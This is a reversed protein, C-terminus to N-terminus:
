GHAALWDGASREFWAFPGHGAYAPHPLTREGRRELGVKELVRQSSTNDLDTIGVIRPLGRTVFGYRLLARAGEAAYGRGWADKRLIFGVQIDPEGQIHNLVHMGLCRGSAREITAWVGLGPHRDYYELIRERFLAATQERTKVGGLYRTIDPDSYFQVLLEFDAPTFARLGLRTTTLWYEGSM